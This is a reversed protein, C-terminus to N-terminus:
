RGQEGMILGIVRHIDPEWWREQTEEVFRLAQKVRKLADESRGLAALAQAEFSLLMPRFIRHELSAAEDRGRELEALAAEPQDLGVLACGLLYRGFVGWLAMSHQEAEAIMWSATAHAKEWEQRVISTFASWLASYLTTSLHKLDGALEEARMGSAQSARVDGMFLQAIALHWHAGVGVDQGYLHATDRDEEPAYLAVAQEAHQSAQAFHGTTNLAVAMARHAVLRPLRATQRDARALMEDAVQRM